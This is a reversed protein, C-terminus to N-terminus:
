QNPRQKGANRRRRMADRQRSARANIRAVTASSTDDSNRNFLAALSEVNPCQLLEVMSVKRQFVEELQAQVEALLLSHGGLDFFNDHVGVTDTALVKQWIAAIAREERNRPPVRRKKAGAALSDPAPLANRDIKGNPNVPLETLAVFVSPVFYDPLRDALFARLESSEPTRADTAVVYAVMRRDATSSGFVAVAAERINAHKRLAAEIEGLEIRFGRLKVQDDIRGLFEINGDARYRALDGTKYMRGDSDSFTDRIFKAATLEPRRLYGRAVGVGSVCLEGPIGVPALQDNRDLIYISLNGIPRGISPTRGDNQCQLVTAWITTETPGYLNFFRRGDAWRTVLDASCAEGAVTITHLKPLEAPSLVSLASPTLVVFTIERDNLFDLLPRGPLLTEKDALCLTAGVTLAAAMEYVFADFCISSFQLVNDNSNLGFTQWQSACVNVLGSHEVLVGKPAGTSGSTYIVYALNAASALEEPRERAAADIPKRDSDKDLCITRVGSEPLLQQLASHTLVVDVESDEIMFALRKVPYNPDLPLFTGGAKMVALVAVMMQLSRQVCVGVMVDPGVDLSRLHNALQNAQEDLDKYTLLGGEFVVAPADPTLDAQRDFLSHFTSDSPFATGTGNWEMLQNQEPETLIRLQSIPLDPNALAGELLLALHGTMRKITDADFLDTNYKFCGTLSDEWEILELTLDFQGEMQSIPFPSLELGAFNERLEPDDSIQFAQMREGHQFKHLVFCAQFIPSRSPDRRPKLREVLLPFPLDQNDIAAITSERVRGVLTLFSPDDSIDGRQVLMNIFYGVIDNFEPRNRGYSATGVLIDQQGTYRHLLLQFGALLIMYPTAGTAKASENLRLTLESSLDFSYTAGRYRQAPPRPRDAPLELDPLDGSLYDGWYKLLREGDSSLLLEEQWRVYDEYSAKSRLLASPKDSTQADYLAVFEELLMLQSWGDTAIHHVVILLVHDCEERTLLHVRFVPGAELDFPRRYREIVLEKLQEIDVGPVDCSEFTLEQYGHVIQRPKGEPAAFTTRLATHRDLLAQLALKLSPVDVTSRIRASFAVHYASSEPENRHLLWLARQGYSLPYSTQENAQHERICAVLEDKANSIQQRFEDTMAGKPGRYRLRDGEVWLQVNREQLADLLEVTNM